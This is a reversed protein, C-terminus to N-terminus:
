SSNQNIKRTVVDFKLPSHKRAIFVEISVKDRFLNRWSIFCQFLQFSTGSKSLKVCATVNVIVMPMRSWASFQFKFSNSSFIFSSDNRHRRRWMWNVNLHYCLWMAAVSFWEAILLMMAVFWFVGDPTNLARRWLDFNKEAFAKSANLVIRIETCCDSSPFFICERGTGDRQYRWPRRTHKGLWCMRSEEDFM